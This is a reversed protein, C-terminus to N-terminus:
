EEWKKYEDLYERWGLEALKTFIIEVEGGYKNRITELCLKLGVIRFAIKQERPTFEHRYRRILEAFITHNNSYGVINDLNAGQLHAGDFLAFRVNAGYLNAYELCAGHLFAYNLSSRSLQAGYLWAGRLDAFDLCADSIDVGRLDVCDKVAKELASKVNRATGTWLVFGKGYDKLEIKM